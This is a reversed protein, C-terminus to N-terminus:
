AQRSATGPGDLYDAAQDGANDIQESYKHDTKDDVVDELKDLGKQVQDSHEAALDKAKDLFSM